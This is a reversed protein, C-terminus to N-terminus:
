FGRFDDDSDWAELAAGSPGAQEGEELNSVVRTRGVWMEAEEALLKELALLHVLPGPLFNELDCCAKQKPRGGGEAIKM